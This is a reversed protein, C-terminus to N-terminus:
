LGDPDGVRASRHELHALAEEYDPRMADYHPIYEILGRLEEIDLPLVAYEKGDRVYYSISEPM